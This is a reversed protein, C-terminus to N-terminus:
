RCKTRTLIMALAYLIAAFIPLLAYWNFDEVNPKLILIVGLFGLCVAVWGQGKITDGVLVVSFITIFIPLTYFAAAAASLPLHPLSVYYSVWMAVLIFSRVMTWKLSSPLRLSLRDKRAMYLVLCPIAIASRTVFIQWMVFNGSLLKIIADGLSLALVTLTIITVALPINDKKM